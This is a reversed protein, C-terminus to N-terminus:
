KVSFYNYCVMQPKGRTESVKYRLYRIKRFLEEGPRIRKNAFGQMFNYRCFVILTERKKHNTQPTNGAKSFHPLVHLPMCLDPNKILTTVAKQVNLFLKNALSQKRYEPSPIYESTLRVVAARNKAAFRNGRYDPCEIEISYDLVMLERPLYQKGYVDKIFDQDFFQNMFEFDYIKRIALYNLACPTCRVYSARELRRSEKKLEKCCREYFDPVHESEFDFMTTALLLREIEKLRVREPNELDRSIREVVRGLTQKHLVQVSTGLLAIHICTLNSLREVEPILSELVNYFM